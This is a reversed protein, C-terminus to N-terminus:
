SSNSMIMVWVSIERMCAMIEGHEQSNTRFRGKCLNMLTLASSKAGCYAYRRSLNPPWSGKFSGKKSPVSLWLVPPLLLHVQREREFVLSSHAPRSLASSWQRAQQASDCLSLAVTRPLVARCLHSPQVPCQLRCKSHLPLPLFEHTVWTSVPM